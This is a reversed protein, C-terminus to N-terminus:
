LFLVTIVILWFVIIQVTLWFHRPVEMEILSNVTISIRQLSMDASIVRINGSDGRLVGCASIVKKGNEDTYANTFAMNVRKLGEQYWEEETVNSGSKESDEAKILNGKEDAIYIGEPYNEDFGYYQNLMLQLEEDSLNMGEITQKIINFASLNEELWSEIEGAQNEISSSLLDRSSEEIIGRTINYSITVLSIIMIIVTPLIIGLLKAKISIMRTGSKNGRKRQTNKEM